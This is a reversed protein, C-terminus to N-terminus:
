VLLTIFLGCAAYMILTDAKTGCFGRTSSWQDTAKSPWHVKLLIVVLLNYAVVLVARIAGPHVKLAEVLPFAANKDLEIADASCPAPILLLTALVHPCLLSVVESKAEAGTPAPLTM